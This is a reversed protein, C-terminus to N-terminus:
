IDFTEFEKTIGTLPDDIDDQDGVMEKKHTEFMLLRGSSIWKGGKSLARSDKKDILKNIILHAYTASITHLLKERTDDSLHNEEYVDIIRKKLVCVSSLKFRGKAKISERIFWDVQKISTPFARIGRLVCDMPFKGLYCTVDTHPFQKQWRTIISEIESVSLALILAPGSHKLVSKMYLPFSPQFPVPCAARFVDVSNSPTSSVSDGTLDSRNVPVLSLIPDTLADLGLEHRIRRARGSLYIERRPCSLFGHDFVIESILLIMSDLPIGFKLEKEGTVEISYKACFDDVLQMAQVTSSTRCLNEIHSAKTGRSFIVSSLILGEVPSQGSCLGRATSTVIANYDSQGNHWSNVPNILESVAAFAASAPVCSRLYNDTDSSLEFRDAFQNLMLLLTGAPPVRAQADRSLMGDLVVVFPHPFVVILQIANILSYKM